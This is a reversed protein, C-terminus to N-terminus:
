QPIRWANSQQGNKSIANAEWGGAGNLLLRKALGLKEAEPVKLERINALRQAIDDLEAATALSSKELFPRINRSFLDITGKATAVDGLVQRVAGVMQIKAQPSQAVLPGVKSWLEPNGGKILDVARSAPLSGGTLLKADKVAQAGFENASKLAREADDLRTAYRDVLARTPGTEAIWESNKGLWARVEAASKGSLQRDAYDLAAANVQAASGTLERLAQVSARTKFFTAPLASADTAFQEDRYQDLATARKGSKSSFIELGQTAEAYNDLLKAQPGTDGGAFRKQLNSLRGYFDKAAASSIGGYGEAPKGRFAEGLLRRADDIQQFTVPKAQGFVDKEQNSISDLIKQYGRAVDPSHKGAGLEAQLSEVLARYEPTQSVFRQMGPNPNGEQAAVIADRAAQDRDFQTRRADLAGQNRTNITQRLSGGIDALEAGAGPYGGPAGVAAARRQAEILQMDAASTLRQGETGMISGVANLSDDSKAGGRLTALEGELYQRQAESLKVETGAKSKLYTMLDSLGTAGLGKKVGWAALTKLEPGVGGAVIRAIEAPVLGGDAAEVAQGATESAAGAVAGSAASTGRGANRLALAANELFPSLRATAPFAGAAKAAGSMIEPAVAGMAGGVATAGGIASLRNGLTLSKVTNKAEGQIQPNGTAAGGETSGFQTKAFELAQEETAGDPATVIHEQGDPATVIFEPM